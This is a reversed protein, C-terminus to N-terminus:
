KSIATHGGILTSRALQHGTNMEVLVPVKMPIATKMLDHIIPKVVELEDKHVDFILEDHVQLIM